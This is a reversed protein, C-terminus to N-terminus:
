GVKYEKTLFKLELGLITIVKYKKNFKLFSKISFIKELFSKKIKQKAYLIDIISDQINKDSTVMDLLRQQIKITNIFREERISSTIGQGEIRYKYLPEQINYIKLKSVIKSYLDYDEATHINEDYRINLRDFDYKRFMVTANFFCTTINDLFKPYEMRKEIKKHPFIEIWSGVISYEPNEELFKLQKEFRTQLSIDDSDMVAIYEGKAERFGVNRAAAVGKNEQYFYRIREDTYSKIVEEVNNTSGDNIVLFEFNKYTQNLISEIAERLQEENTNYVAMIVSVRPSGPNFSENLFNERELKEDEEMKKDYAAQLFEGM